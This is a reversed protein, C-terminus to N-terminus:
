KKRTFIGGTERVANPGTQLRNGDHSVLTVGGQELALGTRLRGNPDVLGLVLADQSTGLRALPRGQGDLFQFVPGDDGMELRARVTGARDRLVLTDTEGSARKAGQAAGLLVVGGVAMLCVLTLGLQRNRRELQNLRNAMELFSHSATSM